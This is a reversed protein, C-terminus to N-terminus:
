AVLAVAKHDPQQEDEAAPGLLAGVRAALAAQGCVSRAAGADDAGLAIALLEAQSLPSDQRYLFGTNPLERGLKALVFTRLYSNYLEPASAPENSKIPSKM